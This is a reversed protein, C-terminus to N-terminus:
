LSKDNSNGNKKISYVKKGGYLSAMGILLFIGEGIPAGPPGNGPGGHGGGPPPPPGGPQALSSTSISM